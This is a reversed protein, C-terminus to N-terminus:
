PQFREHLRSWRPLSTAPLPTGTPAHRTVGSSSM